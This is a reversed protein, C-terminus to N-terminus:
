GSDAPAPEPSLGRRNFQDVIWSVRRKVEAVRLDCVRERFKVFIDFAALATRDVRGQFEAWQPALRRDEVEEGLEARVAAKLGFVFGVAESPSFEQVARVKVIEELPQNAEEPGSGGTLADLIGRTGERLSAGVPNAFRDKQKKFAAAADKAYSALADDLWRRLIAEKRSQILEDLSKM